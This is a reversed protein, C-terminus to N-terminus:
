NNKTSEEHIELEVPNNNGSLHPGGYVFILALIYIFVPLFSLRSFLYLSQRANELKTELSSTVSSLETRALESVQREKNKLVSFLMNKASDVSELKDQQALIIIYVLWSGFGLGLIFVLISVIALWKGEDFNPFSFRRLLAIAAISASIALLKTVSDNIVDSISSSFNLESEALEKKLKDLKFDNLYASFNNLFLNEFVIWESIIKNLVSSPSYNGCFESLSSYFVARKEKLKLAAQQEESLEKLLSLDISHMREIIKEDLSVEVEIPKDRESIFILKKINKSSKEDYYHALSSFYNIFDVFNSLASIFDEDNSEGRVRGINYDLIYFNNPIKPKKAKAVLDYFEDATTFVGGNSDFNYNFIISIDSSTAKECINNINDEIFGGYASMPIKLSKENIFIDEINIKFESEYTFICILIDKLEINNPFELLARNQSTVKLGTLLTFFLQKNTM